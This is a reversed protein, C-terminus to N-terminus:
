PHVSPLEIDPPSQTKHIELKLDLQKNSLPSVAMPVIQPNRTILQFAATPFFAETKGRWCEGEECHQRSSLLAGEM